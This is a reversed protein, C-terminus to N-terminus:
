HTKHYVYQTHFWLKELTILTQVNIYHPTVNTQTFHTYTIGM